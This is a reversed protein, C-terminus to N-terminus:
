SCKTTLVSTIGGIEKAGRRASFFGLCCTPLFSHVLSLCCRVFSLLGSGGLLLLEKCTTATGSSMLVESYLLFLARLEPRSALHALM